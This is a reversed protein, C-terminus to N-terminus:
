STESCTKANNPMESVITEVSGPREIKSKNIDCDQDGVEALPQRGGMGSSQLVLGNLECFKVLLHSANQVTATCDYSACCRIRKELIGKENEDLEANCGEGV